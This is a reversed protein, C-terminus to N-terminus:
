DIISVIKRLEFELFPIECEPARYSLIPEGFSIVDNQNKFCIIGCPDPYKNRKSIYKHQFYVIMNRMKNIDIFLRGHKPSIFYHTHSAKIRKAISQFGEITGGQAFINECFNNQLIELMKDENIVDTILTGTIKICDRIHSMLWLNNTGQFIESIALVSEGRGIYPQMIVDNNSYYFACNIGLTIAVEQFNISLDKAEQLTKGFNGFSSYRVDLCVREINVALKKSLISAIVLSPIEKYGNENRYKFLISDLPSYKDNSIFHCYNTEETIRYIEDEEFEIKYDEIQALVDIGGAPRGVIGLKPVTYYEKLILPCIITSLSSPGGTSPIDATKKNNFSLTRGSNALVATLEAIEQKDFLNSSLYTCLENMCEDSPSKKFSDIIQNFTRRM